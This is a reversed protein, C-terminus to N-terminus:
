VWLPLSNKAIMENPTISSLFKMLNTTAVTYEQDYKM